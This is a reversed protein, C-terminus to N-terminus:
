CVSANGFKCIVYGASQYGYEEFHEGCKFDGLFCDPGTLFSMVAYIDLTGAVRLQESFVREETTVINLGVTSDLRLVNFSEVYKKIQSDLKEIYDSIIGNIIEPPNNQSELDKIFRIIFYIAKHVLKGRNMYHERMDEPIGAFTPWKGVASLAQTVSVVRGGDAFYSHTKEDFTLIAM